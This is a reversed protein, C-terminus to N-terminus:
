LALQHLKTTNYYKLTLVISSTYISPHIKALTKLFNRGSHKFGKFHELLRSKSTRVGEINKNAQLPELLCVYHGEGQSLRLRYFSCIGMELQQSQVWPTACLHM